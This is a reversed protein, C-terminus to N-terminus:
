LTSRITSKSGLQVGYNKLIRNIRESSGPVYPADIYKLDKAQDSKKRNKYNKYVNNMFRPPYNNQILVGRIYAREEELFEPSCLKDARGFLASVVSRKHCMANNSKFDLYRDTHTTKRYIKFKLKGSNNKIVLIDLFPIQNNQEEESTFKIHRNRCNIFHLIEDKKSKPIIAFIDDVYRVWLKIGLEKNSLIDEEILQMAAEAIPVSISSGM